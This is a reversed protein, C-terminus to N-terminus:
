LITVGTFIGDTYILTETAVTAGALKYVISTLVGDTYVLEKTDHKPINLGAISQITEETASNINGQNALIDQLTEETAPTMRVERGNILRKIGVVDPGGGGGFSKDNLKQLLKTVERLQSVAKEDSRPTLEKIQKEPLPYEKPLDIRKQEPIEISDISSSISKLLSVVKSLDVPENKLKRLDSSLSTIAREIKSTDLKTEKASIKKLIRKVDVLVNSLSTVDTKEFKLNNLADVIEKNSTPELTKAVDNFANIVRNVNTELNTVIMGEM